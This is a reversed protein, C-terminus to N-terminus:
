IDGTKEQQGWVTGMMNIMLYENNNLLIAEIVQLEDGQTEEVGM